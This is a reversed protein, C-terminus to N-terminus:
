SGVFYHSLDRKQRGRALLEEDRCRVIFCGRRTQARLEDNIDLACHMPESGERIMAAGVDCSRSPKHETAEWEIYDVEMRLILDDNDSYGM